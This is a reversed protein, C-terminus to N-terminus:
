MCFLIRTAVNINLKYICCYESILTYQWHLMIANGKVAIIFSGAMFILTFSTLGGKDMLAHLQTSSKICLKISRSRGMIAPSSRAM